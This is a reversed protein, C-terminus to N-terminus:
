ISTPVATRLWKSIEMSKWYDWGNQQNVHRALRTKIHILKGLRLFEVVCFFFASVPGPVKRQSTERPTPDPKLM